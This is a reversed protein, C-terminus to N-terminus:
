YDIGLLNLTSSEIEDVTLWYGMPIMTLESYSADNAFFIEKM